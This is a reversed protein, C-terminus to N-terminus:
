SIEGFDAPLHTQMSEVGRRILGAVSGVSRGMEDAISQLSEHGIYRMEVATRQDSPLKDLAAALHLATEGHVVRSVPSSGTGALSHWIMQASGSDDTWNQELRVDRKGLTHNRLCQLLNRELLKMMWATFEPETRGRFDDLGRVADLLTQQVIDSADARKSVIRPLRRGAVLRLYPRYLTLLDERAAAEGRRADDLLTGLNPWREEM